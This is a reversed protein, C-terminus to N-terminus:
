NDEWNLADQWSAWVSTEDAKVNGVYLTTKRRLEENAAIYQLEANAMNGKVFGKPANEIYHQPTMGELNFKIAKVFDIVTQIRDGILFDDMDIGKKGEIEDYFEFFKKGGKNKIFSDLNYALGLVLDDSGSVIVIQAEIQPVEDEDNTTADITAATVGIVVLVKLGKKAVPAAKKAGTSAIGAVKKTGGWAINAGKKTGGWLSKHWSKKQKKWYDPSADYSLASIKNVRMWYAKYGAPDGRRGDPDVCNLPSNGCYVYPSAYQLLPDITLFRGTEPSYYRAGFYNLGLDSDFEKGTFEYRISNEGQLFEEGFPLYNQEAVLGGAENTIASTSGLHDSHYYTVNTENISAILQGGTGHIYSMAAVSPLLVLIGAMLLFKLWKM